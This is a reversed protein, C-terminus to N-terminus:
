GLIRRTVKEIEKACVMYGDFTLHLMDPCKYHKDGKIILHYLDLIEVKLEKMLKEAADNFTTVWENKYTIQAGTGTNDLSKGADYIPLSNIWIPIAGSGRTVEVIRKLGELYIPLPNFPENMPPEINMDWYGSNFFVIKFPGRNKILQNLQWLEYQVFRGNDAGDYVVECYGNLLNTVMGQYGMRISDGILCIKNM